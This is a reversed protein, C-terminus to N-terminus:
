RLEPIDRKRKGEIEIIEVKKCLYNEEFKESYARVMEIREQIKKRSPRFKVTERIRVNRVRDKRTLGCMWRLM